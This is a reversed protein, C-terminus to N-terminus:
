EVPRDYGVGEVNFNIDQIENIEELTRLCFTTAVTNATEETFNNFSEEIESQTGLTEMLIQKGDLTTTEIALQSKVDPNTSISKRILLQRTFTDETNPVRVTVDFVKAFFVSKNM